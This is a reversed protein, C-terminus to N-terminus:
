NVETIIYSSTIIHGKNSSKVKWLGGKCRTIGVNNRAGGVEDHFLWMMGDEGQCLLAM